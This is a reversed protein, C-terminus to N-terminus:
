KQAKIIGSIWNNFGKFVYDNWLSSNGKAPSGSYIMGAEFADSLKVKIQSECLDYGANFSRFSVHRIGLNDMNSVNIQDSYNKAEQEKTKM